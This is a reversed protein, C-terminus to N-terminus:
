LKCFPDSFGDKDAAPLDRGEKIHINIKGTAKKKEKKKKGAKQDEKEIREKQKGSLLNRDEYMLSLVLDGKYLETDPAIGQISKICLISCNIDIFFPM